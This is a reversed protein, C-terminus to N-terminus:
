GSVYLHSTLHPQLKVLVRANLITVISVKSSPPLIPLTYKGPCIIERRPRSSSYIESINGCKTEVTHIRLPRWESMIIYYDSALSLMQMNLCQRSQM